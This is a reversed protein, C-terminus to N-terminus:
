YLRPKKQWITKKRGRIIDALKVEEITDLEDFVQLSFVYVQPKHAFTSNLRANASENSANTTPVQITDKDWFNWDQIKYLKNMWTKTLYNDM